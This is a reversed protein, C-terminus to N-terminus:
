MKSKPSHKKETTTENTTTCQCDVKLPFLFESFWDILLTASPLCSSFRNSMWMFRLSWILSLFFNVFFLKSLASSPTSCFNLRPVKKIWQLSIEKSKFTLKVLYFSHCRSVRYNTSSLFRSFSLTPTVRPQPSKLWRHNPLLRHFNWKFPAIIIKMLKGGSKEGASFFFSKENWKWIIKNNFKKTSPCEFFRPAFSHFFVLKYPRLCDLFDPIHIPFTASLTLSGNRWSMGGREHHALSGWPLCNRNSELRELSLYHFRTALKNHTHPVSM